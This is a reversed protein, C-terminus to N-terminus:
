LKLSQLPKFNYLFIVSTAVVFIGALYGAIIDTPTHVGLYIRSFGMLLIFIISLASVIIKLQKNNTNRLFLFLCIGIFATTVMAHASPHGYGSASVIRYNDPREIAFFLKLVYNLAISAFVVFTVPIGIKKRTRPIVLFLFAIILYVFWKGIYNLFIMINTLIPNIWASVQIYVSDNWAALNGNLVNVSLM